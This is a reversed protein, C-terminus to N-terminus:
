APCETQMYTGYQIIAVAWTQGSGIGNHQNRNLAAQSKTFAVAKQIGEVIMDAAEDRIKVTARPIAFLEASFVEKSTGL